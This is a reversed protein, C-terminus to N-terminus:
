AFDGFKGPLGGRRALLQYGEIWLREKTRGDATVDIQLRQMQGLGGGGGRLAANPVVYEPGREGLMALEPGHLGAWGGQAYHGHAKWFDVANNANGYRDAIYRIGAIANIIPNWIDNPLSKDRADAWTTDIMQFLGSATSHPNKAHPDGGSEHGIIWKLPELWDSPMKTYSLAAKLWNDVGSMDGFAGDMKQAANMIGELGVQFPTPSHPILWEPMISKLKDVLGILVNMAQAPSEAAQQIAAWTTEWVSKVSQLAGDAVGKIANVASEFQTHAGKPGYVAADVAARIPEWITDRWWTLLPGFIGEAKSKIDDVAAGFLDRAAEIKTQIAARIPEFITDRVYSLVANFVETTKSSIADWVLGIVDRVANVKTEVASRIAEWHESIYAEIADIRPKIVSDFIADWVAILVNKVAAFITDTADKVQNWATTVPDIVSHAATSIALSIADWDEKVVRGIETGATTTADVVARWGDVVTEDINDLFDRIQSAAGGTFKDLIAFMQDSMRQTSAVQRQHETESIRTIESWAGQWDGESALAFLRILSLIEQLRASTDTLVGRWTTQWASQIEDGHNEFALAVAETVLDVTERIDLLTQSVMRGVDPGFTEDLAASIRQFAKPVADGSGVFFATLDAFTKGLNEMVPIMDNVGETAWKVLDNLAPLLSLGITIAATELSGKLQEWSGALNNLKEAGVAQATVKGMSAAMEDFGAAGEKALVAGARIADSGFLIELSALRQAETMGAMSNKLVEAVEAMSKVKGNADFFASGTAGVQTSLKEFATHDKDTWKAVNESLGLHQMLASNLGGWTESTPEIGMRRLGALGQELNNTELGLRRFEDRQANTAPQLNLMMTKLSTGADSGTIGAKGMVAIGQALDDFSFGVTSAVAGAAKLSFSFDSVDLASANAAGAILDAVHGMDEGKLNFQALANAAITAAEPLSVGGAAALDLTAKAAGNMIDPITLGGKVLEEIGKGAESASFSTDKGLQLALGSLGSMEEATAGSVAKVASMTSEFGSAAVVSASLGAAVGAIGAIAAGGFATAISSGASGVKSGFSSLESEASSTDANVRVTLSAVDPV